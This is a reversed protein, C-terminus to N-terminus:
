PSKGARRMMMLKGSPEAEIIFQSELELLERAAGQTGPYGRRSAIEMAAELMVAEDGVEQQRQEFADILIARHTSAVATAADQISLTDSASVNIERGM